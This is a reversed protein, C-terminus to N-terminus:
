QKSSLPSYDYLVKPTYLFDILSVFADPEASQGFFQDSSISKANTFRQQAADSTGEDQSSGRGSRSFHKNTVQQTFVWCKRRLEAGIHM